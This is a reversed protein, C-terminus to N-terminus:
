IQRDIVLSTMHTFKRSVIVFSTTHCATKATSYSFVDALYNPQNTYAKHLCRGFFFQNFHIHVGLDIIYNIDVLYAFRTTRM